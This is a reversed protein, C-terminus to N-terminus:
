KGGPLCRQTVGWPPRSEYRKGFLRAVLAPSDAM